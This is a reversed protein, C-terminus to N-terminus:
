YKGGIGVKACDSYGMSPPKCNFLHTESGFCEVNDLKLNYSM